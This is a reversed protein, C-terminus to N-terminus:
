QNQFYSIKAHFVEAIKTARWKAEEAVSGEFLEDVTEFFLSKWQDFHELQIPLQAHPPFPRGHYTNNGLLISEWFRYMKDLHEPWRDKIVQNFIPGILQNNRVKGYFEDVLLKIDDLSQIDTKM